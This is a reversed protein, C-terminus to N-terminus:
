NLEHQNWLEYLKKLQENKEFVFVLANAKTDSYLIGLLKAGNRMYLYVQKMNLIYAVKDPNYELNTVKSRVM